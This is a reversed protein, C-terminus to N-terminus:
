YKGIVIVGFSVSQKNSKLFDRANFSSKERKSKDGTTDIKMPEM